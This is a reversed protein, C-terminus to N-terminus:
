GHNAKWEEMSTVNSPEIVIEGLKIMTRYEDLQREWETLAEKGDLNLEKSLDNISIPM